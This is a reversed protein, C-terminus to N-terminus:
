EAGYVLDLVEKQNRSPILFEEAEKRTFGIDKLGRATWEATADNFDEENEPEPLYEM